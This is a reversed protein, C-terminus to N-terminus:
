EHLSREGVDPMRDGPGVFSGTICLHMRGDESSSCDWMVSALWVADVESWAYPVTFSFTSASADLTVDFQSFGGEECSTTPAPVRGDCRMTWAGRTSMHGSDDRRLVFEAWGEGGDAFLFNLTYGFGQMPPNEDECAENVDRVQVVVEMGAESPSLVARRLDTRGCDTGLVLPAGRWGAPTVDGGDEEIVVPSPASHALPTLTLIVALLLARRM